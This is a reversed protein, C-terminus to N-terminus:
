SGRLEVTVQDDNNMGIKVFINEYKGKGSYTVGELLRSINDGSEYGMERLRADLWLTTGEAGNTSLLKVSVTSGNEAYEYVQWAPDVPLDDALDKAKAPATAPPTVPNGAAISHSTAVQQNKWKNAYNCGVLLLLLSSGVALFTTTRM